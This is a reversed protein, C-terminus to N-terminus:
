HVPSGTLSRAFGVGPCDGPADPGWCGMHGCSGPEGGNCGGHECGDICTACYAVGAALAVFRVGRGYSTDRVTIVAVYGAHIADDLAGVIDHVDGMGNGLATEATMAYATGTLRRVIDTIEAFRM